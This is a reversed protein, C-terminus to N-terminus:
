FLKSQITKNQNHNLSEYLYGYSYQQMICDYWYGCDSCMNGQGNLKCYYGKHHSAGGNEKNKWKLWDPHKKPNGQDKKPHNYGFKVAIKM